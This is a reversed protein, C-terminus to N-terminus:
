ESRRKDANYDWFGVKGYQHLNLSRYALVPRYYQGTTTDSPSQYIENTATVFSCVCQGENDSCCYWCRSIISRIVSISPMENEKSPSIMPAICVLSGLPQVGHTECGKVPGDSIYRYRRIPSKRALSKLATLSAQSWKYNRLHRHVNNSWLGSM